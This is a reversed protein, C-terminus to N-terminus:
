GCDKIVSYALLDQDQSHDPLCFIIVQESTLLLINNM